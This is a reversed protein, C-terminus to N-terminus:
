YSHQLSLKHRPFCRILALIFKNYKKLLIEICEDLLFIISTSISLFDAAVISYSFAEFKHYMTCCSQLIRSGNVFERISNQWDEEWTTEERGGKQPSVNRGWARRPPPPRAPIGPAGNSERSRKAERWGRNSSGHPAAWVYLHEAYM